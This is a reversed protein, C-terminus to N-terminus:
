MTNIIEFSFMETDVFLQLFKWKGGHGDCIVSTSKDLFIVALNKPSFSIQAWLWPIMVNQMYDSVLNKANIM